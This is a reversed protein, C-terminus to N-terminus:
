KSLTKITASLIGIIEDLLQQRKTIIEAPIWHKMRAYRGFTERASGRAYDLFRRYEVRSLRGYGEEINSAISDASAIQQSVLRDCMFNKSLVKMDNAVLDFLEISKRYAGFSYLGNQSM